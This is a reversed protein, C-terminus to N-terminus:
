VRGGTRVKLLQVDVARVSVILQASAAGSEAAAASSHAAAAARAASTAAYSSFESAALVTRILKHALTTRDAHMLVGGAAVLAAMGGATSVRGPLAGAGALSMARTPSGPAEHAGPSPPMAAHSATSAAAATLGPPLLINLMWTGSADATIVLRGDRHAVVQM